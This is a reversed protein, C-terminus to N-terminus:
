LHFQAVETEGADNTFLRKTAWYHSRGSVQRGLHDTAAAVVAWQVHPRHTDNHVDAQAASEGEIFVFVDPLLDGISCEHVGFM